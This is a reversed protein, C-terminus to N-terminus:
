DTAEEEKQGMDQKMSAYWAGPMVFTVIFWVFGLIAKGDPDSEEFIMMSVGIVMGLWMGGFLLLFGLGKIAKDGMVILTVCGFFWFFTICGM